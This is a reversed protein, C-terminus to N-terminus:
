FLKVRINELVESQLILRDCVTRLSTVLRTSYIVYYLQTIFMRHFYQNMFEACM